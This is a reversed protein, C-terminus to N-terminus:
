GYLIIDRWNREENEKEDEEDHKRKQRQEDTSDYDVAEPQSAPHSQIMRGQRIINAREEQLPARRLAKPGEIDINGKINGNGVQTGFNSEIDFTGFSVIRLPASGSTRTPRLVSLQAPEEGVSPAPSHCPSFTIKSTLKLAAVEDAAKLSRGEPSVEVTENTSTEGSILPPETLTTDTEAHGSDRSSAKSVDRTRPIYNVEALADTRSSCSFSRDLAMHRRYEDRLTEYRALDEIHLFSIDESGDRDRSWTKRQPRTASDYDSNLKGHIRLFNRAADVARKESDANKNPAYKDIFEIGLDAWTKMTEISHDTDLPKTIVGDYIEAWISGLKPPTAPEGLPTKLRISLDTALKTEPQKLKGEEASQQEGESTGLYLDLLSNNSSTCTISQDEESQITSTAPADGECEEAFVFLQHDGGRHNGACRNPSLEQGFGMGKFHEFQMPLWICELKPHNSQEGPSGFIYGKPQPYFTNSGRDFLIYNSYEVANQFLSGIADSKSQFTEHHAEGFETKPFDIHFPGLSSNRTAPRTSHRKKRPPLSKKRKSVLLPSASRTERNSSGPSINPREGSIANERPPTTEGKKPTTRLANRDANTENVKNNQIFMGCEHGLSGANIWSDLSLSGRPAIANSYCSCGSQSCHDEPINLNKFTRAANQDIQELVIQTDHDTDSTLQLQPQTSLKKYRQELSRSRSTFLPDIDIKTPIDPSALLTNYDPSGSDLDEKTRRRSQSITGPYPGAQSYGGTSVIHLAAPRRDSFTPSLLAASGSAGIDSSSKKSLCDLEVPAKSPPLFAAENDKNDVGSDPRPAPEIIEDKFTVKKRGITAHSGAEYTQPPHVRDADEVSQISSNGPVQSNNGAGSRKRLVNQQTPRDTRGKMSSRKGVTEFLNQLSKRHRLLSSPAEEERYSDLPKLYQSTSHGAARQSSAGPGAGSWTGRLSGFFNWSGPNAYSDQPAPIPEKSPTNLAMKLFDQALSFVSKSRNLRRTPSPPGRTEPAENMRRTGPSMDGSVKEM